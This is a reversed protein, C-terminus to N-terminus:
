LSPYKGDDDVLNDSIRWLNARLQRNGNESLIRVEVWRKFLGM